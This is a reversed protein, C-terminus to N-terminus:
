NIPALQQWWRPPANSCSSRPKRVKYKTVWQNLLSTFDLYQKSDKANALLLTIIQPIFPVLQSNIATVM